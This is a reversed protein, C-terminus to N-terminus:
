ERQKDRLFKGQLEAYFKGVPEIHRAMGPVISFSHIEPEVLTPDNPPLALRM